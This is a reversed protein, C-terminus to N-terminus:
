HRRNPVGAPEPGAGALAQMLEFPQAPIRAVGLMCSFTM